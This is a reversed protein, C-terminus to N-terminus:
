YCNVTNGVKTCSTPGSAAAGAAIIAQDRRMGSMMETKYEAFHRMADAETMEKNKVSM